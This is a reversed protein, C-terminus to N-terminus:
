IAPRFIQVRKGNVEAVWLRHRSDEAMLHPLQLTQADGWQGAISGDTLNLHTMRNADGDSIVLRGGWVILGFPNGFGKWEAALQGDVTFVQVRNNGRDAVYIRDQQDIALGHATAFEGPAKGKRGWANLFQGAPTFHVLRGNGSDAVIIDGKSTFVLDDPSRFHTEDSGPKGEEGITALLKGEPSFKRLIHLGNDTTWINGQKDIRLGHAIKFMGEGFSRVFQGHKDFVMLPKPGRHLVYIRDRRDIAVASMAGITETAPFQLFGDSVPAAFHAAAFLLLLPSPM